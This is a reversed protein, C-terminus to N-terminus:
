GQLCAKKTKMVDSRLSPGICKAPLALIWLETAESLVVVIQAILIMGEFPEVGGVLLVVFGQGDQAGVERHIGQAGIGAIGFQHASDSQRLLSPRTRANQFLGRCGWGSVLWFRTRLVATPPHAVEVPLILQTQRQVNVLSGPTRKPIDTYWIVSPLLM